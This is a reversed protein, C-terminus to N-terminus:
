FNWLWSRVVSSQNWLKATAHSNLKFPPVCSKLVRPTAGYSPTNSATTSWRPSHGAGIPGHPTDEANPALHSRPNSANFVEPAGGVM